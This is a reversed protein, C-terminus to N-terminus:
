SLDVHALDITPLGEGCFGDILRNVKNGSVISEHERLIRWVSNWGCEPRCRPRLGRNVTMQEDIIWRLGRMSGHIEGSLRNKDFGVAVKQSLVILAHDRFLRGRVQITPHRANSKGVHTL